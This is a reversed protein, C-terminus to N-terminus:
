TMSKLTTPFALCMQAEFARHLEMKARYNLDRPDKSWDFTDLSPLKFKRKKDRIIEDLFPSKFGM